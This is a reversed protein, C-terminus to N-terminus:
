KIVCHVKFAKCDQEFNISKDKFYQLYLSLSLSGREWIVLINPAIRMYKEEELMRMYKTSAFLRWSNTNFSSGRVEFHCQSRRCSPWLIGIVLLTCSISIPGLNRKTSHGKFIPVLQLIMSYVWTGAGQQSCFRTWEPTISFFSNSSTGFQVPNRILMMKHIM